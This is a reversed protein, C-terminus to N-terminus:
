RWSVHEREKECVCVGARACVRPCVSAGASCFGWFTSSPASPRALTQSKPTEFANVAVAGAAGVVRRCGPVGAYMAGSCNSPRGAVSRTSTKAKPTSSHSTSARRGGHRPSDAICTMKATPMWTRQRSTITITIIILTNHTNNSTKTTFKSAASM